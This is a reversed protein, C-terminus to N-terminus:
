GVRLFCTFAINISVCFAPGQSLECTLWFVQYCLPLPGKLSGKEPFVSFAHTVYELELFICKVTWKEKSESTFSYDKVNQSGTFTM